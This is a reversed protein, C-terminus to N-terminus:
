CAREPLESLAPLELLENASSRDATRKCLCASLLAAVPGSARALQPPEGQLVRLMVKMPPEGAHPPEGSCLEIATIGLAWVDVGADHGATQELMEPSLWYVQGAGVFTERKRRREGFEVLAGALGFDSLRVRAAADVLLAAAKLGRHILDLSHLYSLARCAERVVALAAREGLGSPASLRLIDACSGAEHLQLVLWLEGRSVFAAHLECLNAHRLSTM